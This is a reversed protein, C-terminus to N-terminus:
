YRRNRTTPKLACWLAYAALALPILLPVYLTM